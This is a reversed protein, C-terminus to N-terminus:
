INECGQRQAAITHMYDIQMINSECNNRALVIIHNGRTKVKGEGTDCEAM